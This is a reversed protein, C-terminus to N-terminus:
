AALARAHAGFHRDIMARGSAADNVISLSARASEPDPAFTAYAALHKRVVRCGLKEGYLAMTDDFHTMVIAHLVEGTPRAFDDGALFAAVEAALWPAGVSARGIMVGDAGSQDLARRATVGDVIDGNVIVPIAVAEKVARVRNWDATGTYFQCRTRGHVTVMRVGIAQARTALEPANFSADDWGLRMKLTVPVNVNHVVAEILTAAHDLDRMLASGSLGGTVKKAPCGMNIDILDAGEGEARKAAEAMWHAQRGALQVANIAREGAVPAARLVDVKRGRVYEDSAVMESFVLGAGQEQAQRRFPQDSVGSMPAMLVPVRIDLNGIATLM